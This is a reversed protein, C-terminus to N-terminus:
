VSRRRWILLAAVPLLLTGATSGLCQEALWRDITAQIERLLRVKQEEVFEEMRLEVKEMQEDLWSQVSPGLAEWIKDKLGPVQDSVSDLLNDSIEDLVASGERAEIWRYGVADFALEFEGDAELTEDVLEIYESGGGQFVFEGLLVWQNTYASQDLTVQDTAGQYSIRYHAQHTTAHETPVFVYIAYVGASDLPLMWRVRNEIGSANNKTWWSHEGQGHDSEQWYAAPGLRSFYPSNDDIIVGDSGPFEPEFAGLQKKSALAPAPFILGLIFILAAAYWLTKKQYLSVKNTKMVAEVRNEKKCYFQEDALFHNCSLQWLLTV